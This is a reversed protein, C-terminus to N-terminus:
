NKFHKRMNYTLRLFMATDRWGGDASQVFAGVGGGGGGRPGAGGAGGKEKRRCTAELLEREGTVGRWHTWRHWDPQICREDSALCARLM